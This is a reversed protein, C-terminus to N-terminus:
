NQVFFLALFHFVRGSFTELIYTNRLDANRVVKKVGKEVLFSGGFLQTKSGL